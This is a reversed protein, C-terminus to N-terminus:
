QPPCNSTSTIRGDTLLCAKLERKWGVCFKSLKAIDGAQISYRANIIRPSTSSGVEWTHRMGQLPAAQEDDIRVTVKAGDFSCRTPGTIIPVLDLRVRGHENAEAMLGLDGSRIAHGGEVLQDFAKQMVVREEALGLPASPDFFQSWRNRVLVATRLLHASRGDGSRAMGIMGDFLYLVAHRHDQIDRYALGIELDFMPQAYGKPPQVHDLSRAQELVEKPRGARRGLRLLPLVDAISLPSAGTRERWASRDRFLEQYVSFAKPWEKHRSYMAALADRAELGHWEDLDREKVIGVFPLTKDGEGSPDYRYNVIKGFLDEGGNVTGNYEDGLRILCTKRAFSKLGACLDSSDNAADAQPISASPNPDEVPVPPPTFSPVSRPEPVTAVRDERDKQPGCWSWGLSIAIIGGAVTASVTTPRRWWPAIARVRKWLPKNNRALWQHFSIFGNKAAEAIANYPRRENSYWLAQRLKTPDVTEATADAGIEALLSRLREDRLVVGTFERRLDVRLIPYNWERANYFNALLVFLAADARRETGFADNTYTTFAEHFARLLTERENPPLRNWKEWAHEPGRTKPRSSHNEITGQSSM